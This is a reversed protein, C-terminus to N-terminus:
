IVTLSHHHMTIIQIMHQYALQLNQGGQKNKKGSRSYLNLLAFSLEDRDEAIKGEQFIKTIDLYTIQHLEEDSSDCLKIYEM